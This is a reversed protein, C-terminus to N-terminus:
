GFSLTISVLLVFQNWPQRSQFTSLWPVMISFQNLSQNSTLMGPVATPQDEKIDASGVRTCPPPSPTAGSTTSSGSTNTAAATVSGSNVTAPSSAKSNISGEGGEGGNDSVPEEIVSLKAPSTSNSVPVSEKREELQFAFFFSNFIHRLILVFHLRESYFLILSGSRGLTPM